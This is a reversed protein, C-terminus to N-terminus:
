RVSILKTGRAYHGWSGSVGAPLADDVAQALETKRLKSTGKLGMHRAVAKMTRADPDGLLLWAFYRRLELPLGEDHVHDVYGLSMDLGGTFHELGLFSLREIIGSARVRDFALPFGHFFHVRLTELKPLHTPALELLVDLGRLLADSSTGDSASLQVDTAGAFRAGEDCELVARVVQPGAEGILLGEVGPWPGGVGADFPEIAGHLSRTWFRRLAPFGAAGSRLLEQTLAGDTGLLQVLTVSPFVRPTGTDDLLLEALQEATLEGTTVRLDTASARAAARAADDMGLLDVIRTM